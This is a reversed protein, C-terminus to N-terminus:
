YPVEKSSADEGSLELTNNKTDGTFIDFKEKEITSTVKLLSHCSM